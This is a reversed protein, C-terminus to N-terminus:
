LNSFVYASPDHQLVHVLLDTIERAEDEDGQLRALATTAQVRISSERDRLRRRLASLIHLYTEEDIEGLFSITMALLQCVRFRVIKDKSDIGSLLHKMFTEVFQTALPDTGEIMGRGNTVNTEVIGQEECRRNLLHLFAAIMKFIRDANQDSKKVILVRNLCHLFKSIFSTIPLQRMNRDLAMALKRTSHLTSTQADHFIQPVAEYNILAQVMTYKTEREGERHTKQYRRRCCNDTQVRAVLTLTLLSTRAITRVTTYSLISTASWEM